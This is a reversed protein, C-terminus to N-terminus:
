YLFMIDRRSFEEIQIPPIKNGIVNLYELNELDLLPSLDDICNNSIDLVRLKKLNSLTDINGIQNDALYLEEIGVLNWLESIDEILNKSLDVFVAQLCFEIGELSEIEYEAMEIDEFDELYYSPLDVKISGYVKRKVANYFNNDEAFYDRDEYVEADEESDFYEFGERDYDWVYEPSYDIDEDVDLDVSLTASSSYDLSNIILIHAYQKLNDFNQSQFHKDIEQNYFVEKDPHYIMILKSFCKNINNDPVDTYESVIKSIKRISSYQKSKYLGIINATINNLTPGTYLEKLKIYLDTNTM